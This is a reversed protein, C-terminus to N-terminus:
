FSVDTGHRKKETNITFNFALLLTLLVARTYMYLFGQFNEVWFFFFYIFFFYFPGHEGGLHVRVMLTLGILDRRYERPAVIWKKKYSRKIKGGTTINENTTTTRKRFHKISKQRGNWLFFFFFFTLLKM